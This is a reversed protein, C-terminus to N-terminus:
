KRKWTKIKIFVAEQLFSRESKKLGLFWITIGSVIVSMSFTWLFGTWGSYNCDVWLPFPVSIVSVIVVRSIVERLYLWSSIIKRKQLYIIRCIFTLFIIGFRSLMVMEVEKGLHLLLWTVPINLFLLLSILLQYNRIRGIAQVSIWLPASIADILVFVLMWRCFLVTYEPVIDLWVKLVFPMCLYLPFGVLFLLFYSFRSTQFILRKFYSYDGAAYSKVLAPNFATQFNVVLQNVASSVQGAIGLAANTVVGFFVNFLINIGQQVGVTAASGFLSWGSFSMLEQYLRRDWFYHYRCTSFTKSCYLKYIITVIGTILTMLLAYLVLKDTGFYQLLIVMGLRLGVEAISIYAYFSMREYANIGANYPVRIINICFTLVSLQYVWHAASLREPPINLYHYFIWLGLTEALVLVFLAISIHATMSMSFVRAVQERDNRGLNFSLFRQTSIAMAGNLFSFMVVIGGVVNYIGFDEVGLVNLVVRSTYLTVLMILLMRIYLMGTNKAIRRTNESSM